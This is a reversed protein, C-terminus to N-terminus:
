KAKKALLVFFNFSAKLQVESNNKETCGWCEKALRVFKEAEDLELLKEKRENVPLHRTENERKRVIQRYPGISNIYGLADDLSWSFIDPLCETRKESFPAADFIEEFRSKRYAQAVGPEKLMAAVPYEAYIADALKGLKEANAKSHLGVPLFKPSDYDLVVLTGGPKLVRETEKFFAEVNFWHTAAGAVVMDVSEKAVPLDEAVGEKFTVNDFYCNEKATELQPLSPDVGLVTKFYPSFLKTAQGAGCSVDLLFDLNKGDKYGSYKMATEIIKSPYKPHYKLGAKSLTRTEYYRLM